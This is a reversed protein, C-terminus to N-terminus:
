LYVDTIDFYFEEFSKTLKKKDTIKVKIYDITKNNFKLLRQNTREYDINEICKLLKSMIFYELKVYNGKGM